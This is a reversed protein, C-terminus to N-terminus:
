NEEEIGVHQIIQERQKELRLILKYPDTRLEVSKALEIKICRSIKELELWSHLEIESRPLFKLFGQIGTLVAISIGSITNILLRTNVDDTIGVSSMASLSGLLIVIVEITQGIRKHRIASRKCQIASYNCIDSFEILQKVTEDSWISRKSVVTCDSSDDSLDVSINSDPSPSRSLIDTVIKNSKRKYKCSKKKLNPAIMEIISKSNTSTFAKRKKQINDKIDIRVDDKVDDKIERDKEKRHVDQSVNNMSESPSLETDAVSSDDGNSNM